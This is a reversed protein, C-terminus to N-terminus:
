QYVVQRVWGDQYAIIGNDVGPASYPGQGFTSVTLTSLTSLVPNGGTPTPSMMSLVDPTVMFEGTNPVICSFSAGAIPSTSTTVVGQIEVM